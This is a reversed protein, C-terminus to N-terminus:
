LTSAIVARDRGQAMSRAAPRTSRKELEADVIRSFEAHFRERSFQRAHAAIRRPDFTDTRREFRDIADLLAEETQEEFFIGTVDDVVTERAGGRGFAIVPRGAAMAEIPTIGFDEEGPFVLARCGTLYRWLEADPQWGLFRVTPGAERELRKRVEGDGIVILNRGSRGFARVALDARKYGVLQGALVYYDGPTTTSQLEPTTVPPYVVDADRGYWRAIRRRVNHSNAVFRDVRQATTFDWMRLYHLIPAALWRKPASMSRSYDAAGDWLYRMPTHCYCIHVAEPSVLVGKAPGSESSIVLDYDRLDLQELALPMFPLYSRYLRTPWPLRSIWTTRVSHARIRASVKSADYAHTYIDASPFMECLADVVKEGGRMNVLWYHVIAVKVVAAADTRHAL